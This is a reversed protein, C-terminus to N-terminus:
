IPSTVSNLTSTALIKGNCIHKGKSIFWDLKVEKFKSKSMCSTVQSQVKNYLKLLIPSHMELFPMLLFYIQNYYIHRVATKNILNSNETSNLLAKFNPMSTMTTHPCEEQQEESFFVPIHGLWLGKCLNLKCTLKCDCWFKASLNM